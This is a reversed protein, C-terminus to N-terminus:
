VAYELIKPVVQKKRSLIGPVWASGKALSVDFAREVVRPNGAIILESGEAVVDTILLLAFEYGRNQVQQELHQTLAEELELIKPLSVTEYQAILVTKEGMEFEKADAGTIAEITPPHAADRSGFLEVGFELADMGIIDGLFSAIERDTPTCTPSKLLITDTMVASLLIAAIHEPLPVKHRQFELAVITATSGLPLNIFQIPGATQIDGIRHHDVVELVEAESIGLAGQSAENHDVLIIRRRPIRVLDTRTIIGICRSDDDLVVAERLSATLIDGAVDKLLADPKLSLARADLHNEVREALTEQRSRSSELESIFLEALMRTTFLGRYRGNSDTVVLARINKERMLLGADLLSADDYISIVGSTMVDCARSYVHPILEPAQINYRDLIWRTEHPLPGLRVAEYLQDPDVQSKLYAYALASCISDNDPNRHGLVLIPHM